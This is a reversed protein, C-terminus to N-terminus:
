LITIKTTYPFYSLKNYTKSPFLGSTSKVPWEMRTAYKGYTVRALTQDNMSTVIGAMKGSSHVQNRKEESFILFSFGIFSVKM